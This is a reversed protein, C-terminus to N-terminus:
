RIKSTEGVTFTRKSLPGSPRVHWGLVHACPFRKSIKNFCVSILNYQGNKLRNPVLRVVIQNWILRFITLVIQNRNSLILNRFSKGTHLRPMVPTRIMFIIYINLLKYNIIIIYLNTNQGSRSTGYTVALLDQNYIYIRICIYIYIFKYMFNFFFYPFRRYISKFSKSVFSRFAVWYSIGRIFIWWISLEVKLIKKIQRSKINIM